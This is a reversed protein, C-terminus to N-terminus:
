GAMDVSQTAPRRVVVKAMISDVVTGYAEDRRLEAPTMGTLEVCHERLRRATRYGVIKAVRRYPLDTERLLALAQLFRPLLAVLRTSSFGARAMWRDLSRRTLMAQRALSPPNRVRSDPRFMEILSDRLQPPLGQVLPQIREVVEQAYLPKPNGILHRELSLLDEEPSQFLVLATAARAIELAGHVGEQTLQSYVVINRPTQTLATITTALESPTLLAPDLVVFADSWQRLGTVLSSPNCRVAAFGNRAVIRRIRRLPLEGLLALYKRKKSGTDAAKSM